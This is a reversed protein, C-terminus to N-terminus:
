DGLAAKPPRQGIQEVLAPHFSELSPLVVDALALLDAALPFSPSPCAIAYYGAAHLARLGNGSDEIGLCEGPEVGLRRAAEYYIQPHPKGHTMDDGFVM